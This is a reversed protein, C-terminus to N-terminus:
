VSECCRKWKLLIIDYRRRTLLVYLVKEPTEAQLQLLLDFTHKPVPMIRVDSDKIDFPPLNETVPQNM